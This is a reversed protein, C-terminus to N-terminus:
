RDLVERVKRTLSETSFPKQIFNVGKDLVGHHVIANDTYGSIFLVKIDPTSLKLRDALEKGSMGPMVVDTLLLHIKKAPHDQIFKLAEGGDPAEYVQYGRDRLIRAALDRVSQEDEALLITENGTLLSIDLDKRQLNDEEEEVRPLYIKFTTGLGPESYVNINGGSQKVIGYVTSLGLGTGKGKEKTTFFPEFIRERVEPTIGAGSDSVSLMVYNGPTVEMHTQAYAESLKINLTEITLKGGSPMADRANVALNLIVQEIQGPDTKVKGIDESFHYVLDIDEGLIRHLMRDLDKLLTNLNIVKFDLIQRRSFALLQRTLNAARESAKLIEEINGRLPDSKDLGLCSLEAYGKIVTLLNNFDHAIGGALGGIAEMKQSQRLQEQIAIKDEEAQMLEKFLQINAIAGAIQNGVREALRLDVESYANEKLSRLHLVGIVIDKALLPVSILSRIGSQFHPLLNPLTATVKQIDNDDKILILLSSRTQMLYENVSGGLPFIDGIRRDPVDLGLIYAVTVTNDKFNTINISIRDFHILKHVEEAFRAYVEDINLTSSIIRGIEAIAVNEKALKKSEEESRRLSEEAQKRETIDECTMLNEGSELQVPIFNIIKQAGDKCTVSFIRGRKEGPKLSKLDNLWASIVQHKYNPDPYAKRCWTKGDPVDNLDYGFLEKFKPNIYKFIGDKDIMVMGFPANETLTQFREREARLTEEAQKRESIDRAWVQVGPEGLYNVVKAHIEGWFSSGDKRLFKVEYNSPISKGQMRARARERTLAQFDPHYVLWHDLGELEGKGYGLMEHLRRNAFIINFGKQIFIGDFSEEVLTRYREESQALTEEFKKRETTDRFIGRFGIAQGYPDRILSVSVEGYRKTGNKIIVEWEFGKIPIGTRYVTNFAQYLKKANENDMYQRNNMGMMEDRSYGLLRCVADNFFTFNGALDVEFYGDEINELITRYKEGSERLAEEARKRETIDVYTALVAPEGNNEIQIASLELWVTSGDKRIARIEYSPGVSKGELLTKYQNFFTLRDDPHVLNEIQKPTLSTPEDSSYGLIRSIAPNAYVLRPPIGQAIVIGQLSAEVLKKYINESERYANIIKAEKNQASIKLSKQNKRIPLKAGKKGKEM